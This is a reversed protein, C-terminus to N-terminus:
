ESFELSKLFWNTFINRGKLNLHAFDRYCKFPLEGPFHIYEIKKEALLYNIRQSLVDAYIEDFMKKGPASREFNVMVIRVNNEKAKSFLISYVPNDSSIMKWHAIRRRYEDLVSMKGELSDYGMEKEYWKEFAATNQLPRKKGFATEKIKNLIFKKNSQIKSGTNEEGYGEFFFLNTEICILDPKCSFIEDFIPEFDLISAGARTIRLYNIDRDDKLFNNLDEDFPLATQAISAGLVIINKGSYKGSFAKAKFNVLRSLNYEQFSKGPTVSEAEAKKQLYFLLGIFALFLLLASIYVYLPPTDRM